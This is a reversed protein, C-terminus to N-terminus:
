IYFTLLSWSSTCDPGLNLKLIIYAERKDLEERRSSQADSEISSHDSTSHRSRVSVYEKRERTDQIRNRKLAYEINDRMDQIRNRETEVNVQRFNVRFNM